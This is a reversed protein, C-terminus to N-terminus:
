FRYNVGLKAMQVGNLATSTCWTGNQGNAGVPLVGCGTAPGRFGLYEYDAKLSWHQDIAWEVGAGVAAGWVDKQGSSLNFPLAGTAVSGASYEATAMETLAAGAKVYFLTHDGWSWAPNFADGTVGLRAALVGYANGVSTSTSTVCPNTAAGCPTGGQYPMAGSGSLRVYGFEGELGAVAKGFQYNYGGTAGVILSPNLGYHAVCGTKLGPTGGDCSVPVGPPYTTLGVVTTPNAGDPTKVPDTWGGGLFGGVYFGTWTFVPLPPAPPPAKNTPLDAAAAVGALGLFIMAGSAFRGIM